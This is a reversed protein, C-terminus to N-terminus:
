AFPAFIRFRFLISISIGPFCVCRKGLEHTLIYSSLFDVSTVSEPRNLYATGGATSEIPISGTLLTVLDAGAEDMWTRVNVSDKLVDLAETDPNADFDTTLVITRVFRFTVNVGVQQIASNSQMEALLIKDAIPNFNSDTYACGSALNAVRCMARNTVLVLVDVVPATAQMERSSSRVTRRQGQQSSPSAEIMTGAVGVSTTVPGGYDEDWSGAIALGSPEGDARVFTLSTEDKIPAEVATGMIAHEWLTTTLVQQQQVTTGDNRNNTAPVMITDLEYAAVSTTFTAVIPGKDRRLLTAFGNKNNKFIAGEWFVQQQEQGSPTVVSRRTARLKTYVASDSGDSTAFSFTPMAFLDDDETEITLVAATRRRKAATPVPVEAEELLRDALVTLVGSADVPRVGLGISSVAFVTVHLLLLPLKGVNKMTTNDATDKGKLPLTRTNCTASVATTTQTSPTNATATPVPITGLQIKLVDGKRNM